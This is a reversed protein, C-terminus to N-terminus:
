PYIPADRLVFNMVIAVITVGGIILGIMLNDKLRGIM